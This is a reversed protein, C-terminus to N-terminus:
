EAGRPGAASLLRGDGREQLLRMHTQQLAVSPVVGLEDRLLTCLDEYVHLAEAVNGEVALAEMLLQYGSERYPAKKVLARAGHEASALESRGIGLSSAAHCELARVELEDLYRRWEEIWPADEDVLFGRRATVLAVHSAGWACPWDQRAVAAEARHIAERAAELDIWSADPLELRFRRHLGLAERGVARRVKSVLARLAGDVAQPASEPWLAEVLEDRGIVRDRNAVLYVFLLRGQRGPLENEIRRGNIQAALQGCRQIRTRLSTSSGDGNFRGGV